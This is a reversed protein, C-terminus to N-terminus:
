KKLIKTVPDVVNGLAKLIKEVATANEASDSAPPESLPSTFVKDISSIIFATYKAKEEPNTSDILDGVLKRYPDLSISINSKFAYEEELHREHSYQLSCFTIAFIIPLSISLKMYFAVNFIKVYPLYLILWASLAISACVCAALAWVWFMKGKAIALQRTQVSHFLQYNTALQIKERIFGELRDLEVTLRKTEADNKTVMEDARAVAADSQEKYLNGLDSAATTFSDVNLKLQTQAKEQRVEEAAQVTAALAAAETKLSSTITTVTTQATLSLAEFGENLAKQLAAFDSQYKSDLTSFNASQSAIATKLSDETESKFAAIQERIKSYELRLAELDALVQKSRNSAAEVDAAILKTSAASDTVTKEYQQVAAWSTIARQELEKSTAVFNEIASSNEVVRKNANESTKAFGEIKSVSETARAEVSGFEEAKRTLNRLSAELAKLQNQKAQLGLIEGSLLQLNSEWVTATLEEVANELQLISDTGNALATLHSSTKKAESLLANQIKLPLQPIKGAKVAERLVDRNQSLNILTEDFPISGKSLDFGLEKAKRLAANQAEASFSEVVDLLLAPIDRKEIPVIEESM